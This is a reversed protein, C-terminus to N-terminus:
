RLSHVSCSPRRYFCEGHEFYEKGRQCIVDWSGPTWDLQVIAEDTIELNSISPTSHQYNPFDQTLSQQVNMSQGNDM